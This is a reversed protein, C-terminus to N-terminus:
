EVIEVFCRSEFHRGLLTVAEKKRKELILRNLRFEKEESRHARMHRTVTHSETILATNSAVDILYVVLSVLVLQCINKKAM